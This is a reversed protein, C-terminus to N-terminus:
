AVGWAILGLGMLIFLVATVRPFPAPRGARRSLEASAGVIVLGLGGGLAFWNMVTGHGGEDSAPWANTM